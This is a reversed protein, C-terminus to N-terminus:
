ACVIYYEAPSPELYRDSRKRKECRVCCECWNIMKAAIPGTDARQYLDDHLEYLTTTNIPAKGDTVMVM